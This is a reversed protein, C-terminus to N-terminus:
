DEGIFLPEPGPGSPRTFRRGIEQHLLRRWGIEREYIHVGCDELRIVPRLAFDPAVLSLYGPSCLGLHRDPWSLDTGADPAHSHIQGVLSLGREIAADTVDNMLEDSIALQYPRKTVGPGRLLVVQRVHAVSGDHSGLWMAVGERPVRGDLAMDAISQDWAFDPLVWQDPIAFYSNM